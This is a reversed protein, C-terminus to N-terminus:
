FLAVVAFMSSVSCDHMERLDGGGPQEKRAVAYFPNALILTIYQRKTAAKNSGASLDDNRTM